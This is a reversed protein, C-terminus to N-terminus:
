RLICPIRLSVQHRVPNLNRAQGSSHARAKALEVRAAMVLKLTEREAFADPMLDEESAMRTSRRISHIHGRGRHETM